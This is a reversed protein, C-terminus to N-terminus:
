MGEEQRIEADEVSDVISTVGDGDGDPFGEIEGDHPHVQLLSFM